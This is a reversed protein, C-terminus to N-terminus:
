PQTQTSPKVPHTAFYREWIAVTQKTVPYHRQMCARGDWWTHDFIPLPRKNVERIFYVRGNHYKGEYDSSQAICLAQSCTIFGSTKGLVLKVHLAKTNKLAQLLEPGRLFVRRQKAMNIKNPVVPQSVRLPV